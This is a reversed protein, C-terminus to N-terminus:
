FRWAREGGAVLWLSRARGLADRIFVSERAYEWYSCALLEADPVKDFNWERWDLQRPPTNRLTTM